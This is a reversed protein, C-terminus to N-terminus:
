SSAARGRETLQWVGPQAAVILGEDTMAKREARAATQWRVEGTPSKQKDRDLLVDAM